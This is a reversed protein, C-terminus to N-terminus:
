QIHLEVPEATWTSGRWNAHVTYRGPPPPGEVYADRNDTSCLNQEWRHTAVKEEGAAFTEREVIAPYARHLDSAWIPTGEHEVWFSAPSTEREHEYATNRTNKVRLTMVVTEGPALMDKNLELSVDIGEPPKQTPRATRCDGLPARQLSPPAATQPTPAETPMPRVGEDDDAQTATPELKPSSEPVVENAAPPDSSCATWIAMIAILAVRSAKGNRM